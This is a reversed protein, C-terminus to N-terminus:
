GAQPYLAMAVLGRTFPIRNAVGVVVLVMVTTFLATWLLTRMRMIDRGKKPHCTKHM